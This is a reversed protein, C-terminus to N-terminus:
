DRRWLGGAPAIDCRPAFRQGRALGGGSRVDRHEHHHHGRCISPSSSVGHRPLPVWHSPSLQWRSTVSSISLRSCAGAIVRRAPPTASGYVASSCCATDRGLPRRSALYVLLDHRRVALALLGMGSASAVSGICLAARLFCRGSSESWGSSSRFCPWSAGAPKKRAFSFSILVRKYTNEPLGLGNYNGRM